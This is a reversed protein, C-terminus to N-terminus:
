RKRLSRKESKPREKEADGFLQMWEDVESESLQVDHAEARFQDLAARRRAANMKSAAEEKKKAPKQSPKTESRSAHSEPGTSEDSRPPRSPPRVSPAEPAQQENFVALWGDIDDDLPLDRKPGNQAKSAHAQKTSSSQKPKPAPKPAPPRAAPRRPASVPPDTAPAQNGADPLEDGFVELWEAIEAASLQVHVAEGPAPAQRLPSELKDAFDRCHMAQMSHNRAADLVENDSSVVTWNRPDPTHRIREMIVRDANSHVSAAFIVKVSRTSLSSMGGPLGQDFVVICQKRTRAAFGRLKLVLKAEDDPDDLSIDHLRAILNHGDILFPM